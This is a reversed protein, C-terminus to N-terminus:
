LLGCPLQQPKRALVRSGAERGGELWAGDSPLPIARSKVEPGSVPTTLSALPWPYVGLMDLCDVNM